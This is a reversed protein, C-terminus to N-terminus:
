QVIAAQGSEGEERERARDNIEAVEARIPDAQQGKQDEREHITRSQRVVRREGSSRTRGIAVGMAISPLAKVV